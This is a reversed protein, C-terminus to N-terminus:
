RSSSRAPPLGPASPHDPLSARRSSCMSGTRKISAQTSAPTQAPQSSVRTHVRHRSFTWATLRRCTQQDTFKRIGAVTLDPGRIYEQVPLVEIFAIFQKKRITRIDHARALFTDLVSASLMDFNNEDAVTIECESIEMGGLKVCVRVLRNERLSEQFSTVDSYDIESDRLELWFIDGDAKLNYLPARRVYDLHYDRHVRGFCVFKLSPDDAKDAACSFCGFM